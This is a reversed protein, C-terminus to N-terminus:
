DPYEFNFKIVDPKIYNPLIHRIDSNANESFFSVDAVEDTYADYVVCIIGPLQESTIFSDSKYIKCSEEQVIRILDKSNNKKKIFFVDNDKNGFFNSTVGVKIFHEYLRDLDKNNTSLNNKIIYINRQVTQLQEFYEEINDISRIYKNEMVHANYEWSEYNKNRRRDPISYKQQIYSGLYLSVKKAGSINAHTGERTDSEKLQLKNNLLNLNLFDVENQQAIKEVYNFFPQASKRDPAPNAVLLIPINNNKSLDIIRKLYEESKPFCKKEDHINSVDSIDLPTYNRLYSFNGKDNSYDNWFFQQFDYKTLEKYREHFTTIGFLMDGWSSHYSSVLINKIYDISFHLAQTNILEHILGWDPDSEYLCTSIDLVILKPSQSKLAEKLWYYTHWLPQGSGWLNYGAIGYNRWMSEINFHTGAVSPGLFLVDVTNKKQSYFHGMTSIGDYKKNLLIYSTLNLLFFFLLIFIITKVLNHKKLKM